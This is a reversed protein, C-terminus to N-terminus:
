LFNRFYRGFGFHDHHRCSTDGAICLLHNFLIGIHENTFLASSKKLAEIVRAKIAPDLYEANTQMSMFYNEFPDSYEGIIGILDDQLTRNTAAQVHALLLTNEATLQPISRGQWEPKTICWDPFFCSFCGSFGSLSVM